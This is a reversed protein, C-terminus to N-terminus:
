RLRRALNLAWFPYGFYLGALIHLTLSSPLVGANRDLYRVMLFWGLVVLFGASVIGIYQEFPIADTILLTQFVIVVAMGIFGLIIAMLSLTPGSPRSVLHLGLAIPFMLVYQIIVAVDNLTGLIGVGSVFFSVLFAIGLTSVAASAYLCWQVLPAIGGMGIRLRGRERTGLSTGPSGDTDEKLRWILISTLGTWGLVIAVFIRQLLGNVSEVGAIRGIAIWLVLAIFGAVAAIRSPIVFAKFQPNHRFRSSVLFIGAVFAVFSTLGTANHMFGILTTGDCGADCPLLPQAVATGLGFLGILLPGKIPGGRLSTTRHLGAAFAMILLGTIVFNFNQVLPQDAEVGGLESIAQTMHNYDEEVIGGVLVLAGFILPVAMGCAVLYISFRDIAQRAIYM